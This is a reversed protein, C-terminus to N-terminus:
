ERGFTDECGAMCANFALTYTPDCTFNCNQESNCGQIATWNCCPAEGELCSANFEWCYNLDSFCEAQIGLAEERCLGACVPTDCQMGPEAVPAKDSAYVTISCAVILMLLLSTNRMRRDEKTQSTPGSGVKATAVEDLLNTYEGISIRDGERRAQGPPETMTARRKLPGRTRM